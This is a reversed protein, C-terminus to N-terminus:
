SLSYQKLLEVLKEFAKVHSEGMLIVIDRAEKLGLGFKVRLERITAVGSGSVNLSYNKAIEHFKESLSETNTAPAVRPNAENIVSETIITKVLLRSQFCRAMPEDWFAALPTGDNELCVLFINM